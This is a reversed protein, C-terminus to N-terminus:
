SVVRVVANWIEQPLVFFLVTAVACLTGAILSMPESPRPETSTAPDLYMVAILRLYYCAAVAANVAMIIALIRGVPSGEGWAAFFLNLKGLFGATPPLGTLSFLCVTLLLAVAPNSRSLGALDSESQLTRDRGAATLLAFAGVTMLGYAVLYFLLSGPGGVAAVGDGVSLGVLMYGAHAVSSFAMLRLVNRQRLAMLNGVLMTVVALAALLSRVSAGPVWNDLSAAGDILPLLRLLSVFGVVKPIFILMASAATSAGQFVDPAYFHFPVAGLRFSIGAVLLATALLVPASAAGEPLAALAQRIGQFSTTGAVGFLWSMGYLVLASSFISLLFYKLTAEQESRGGRAAFLLVYTPISVLELALFLSVLDNASAVFNAGALISLLCAHCEAASTESVQNWLILVLASGVILSLGRVLWVMGDSRFPGSEVVVQSQNLWAFTAAGLAALSLLGWRHRVSIAAGTGAPAGAAAPSVPVASLFPGFLFMVCVTGLLIVEPIILTVAQNLQQTVHALDPM